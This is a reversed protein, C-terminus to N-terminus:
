DKRILIPLNSPMLEQFFYDIMQISTLFDGKITSGEIHGGVNKAHLLMLIRPRLVRLKPVILLKEIVHIAHLWATKM